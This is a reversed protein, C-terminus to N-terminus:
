QPIRQQRDTVFDLGGLAEDDGAIGPPDREVLHDATEAGEAGIRAEGEVQGVQGVDRLQAIGIGAKGLHEGQERGERTGIGSGARRHPHRDECGRVHGEAQRSDELVQRFGRIRDFGADEVVAVGGQGPGAPLVYGPGGPALCGSVPRGRGQRATVLEADANRRPVALGRGGALQGDGGGEICDAQTLGAAASCARCMIVTGGDAMFAAPMDKVSKGEAAMLGHIHSPRKRDALYVARVNLWIATDQGNTLSKEHAFMIAKAAAWTGDTTLNVFSGRKGDKAQAAGTTMLLAAVLLLRSLITKM